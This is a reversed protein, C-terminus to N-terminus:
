DMLPEPGDKLDQLIKYTKMLEKKLEQKSYVCTSRLRYGPNTDQENLEWEIDAIHRKALPILNRFTKAIWTKQSDKIETKTM